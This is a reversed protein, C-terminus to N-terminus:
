SEFGIRCCTLPKGHHDSRALEEKGEDNGPKVRYDM